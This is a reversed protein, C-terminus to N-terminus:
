SRRALVYLTAPRTGHELVRLGAEQMRDGWWDAGHGRQHVLLPGFAFGIWPEKTTVMLLFDGGPKLVRASEAFTQRVGDGNLHDIAYASVIADFAAAQFPLKRMDATEISVRQDVGAIKLNALLKQQPSQTPGFHQEFSSGFLDLAVLTAQPRADLAMISSRGTGAGLDLVCGNGSRFFNQTPLAPIGNIDFVFRTIVFSIASWLFLGAFFLTPVKNWKRVLALTLLVASPILIPVHAYSLWWPYGFDLHM